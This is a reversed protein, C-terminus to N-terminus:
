KEGSEIKKVIKLLGNVVEDIYKCDSDLKRKMLKRWTDKRIRISREPEQTTMKYNLYSREM